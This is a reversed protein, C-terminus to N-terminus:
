RRMPRRASSRGRDAARCHDVGAPDLGPGQAAGDPDVAFRAWNLSGGLVPQQEILLVRAGANAADLAAQLGAPGAGIVAVDVFLLANDHYEPRFQLDLM